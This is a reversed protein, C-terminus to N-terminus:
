AAVSPCDGGVGPDYESKIHKEQFGNYYVWAEMEFQTERPTMTPTRKIGIWSAIYFLGYATLHKGEGRKV